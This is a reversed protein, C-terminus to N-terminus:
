FSASTGVSMPLGSLRPTLSESM